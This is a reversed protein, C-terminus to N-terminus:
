RGVRKMHKFLRLMLLITQLRARGSVMVQVRYGETLTALVDSGSAGSRENFEGAVFDAEAVRAGGHVARLIFLQDAAIPFRPSYFGYREHLARRMLLGVAHGSVHAFPGYLWEWRPRRPGMIRAGVRIKATVFDAGANAAAARYNKVADPELRDDAGLVLYYDGSAMKVARNLADYIGFDPRSDVVVRFRTQAEKLLTLTGDTSAGDAVVWEFDQDTQNQLSGILGPLHKAANYTATIISISALKDEKVIVQM